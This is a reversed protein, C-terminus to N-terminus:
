GALAALLRRAPAFPDADQDNICLAIVVQRKPFVVVIPAYGPKNGAHGYATDPSFDDFKWIGLGYLDGTTETM